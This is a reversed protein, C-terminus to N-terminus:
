SFKWLTGLIDVPHWIYKGYVSNVLMGSIHLLGQKKKFVEDAHVEILKYEWPV